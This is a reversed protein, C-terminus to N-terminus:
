LPTVSLCSTVISVFSPADLFLCVVRTGTAQNKGDGFLLTGKELQVKELRKLREEDTEGFLKIPEGMVRFRRVIELKPLVLPKKGKDSTEKERRIIKM